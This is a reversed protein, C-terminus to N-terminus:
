RGEQGVLAEVQALLPPVSTIAAAWLITPDINWYGHILRNRMMRMSAVPLGAHRADDPFLIALNRAAEGIILFRLLVADLVPESAVFTEYNTDVTFEVIRRAADQIDDLWLSYPRQHAIM